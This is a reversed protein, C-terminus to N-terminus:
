TNLYYVDDAPLNHWSGDWSQYSLSKPVQVGNSEPLYCYKVTRVHLYVLGPVPNNGNTYFTAYGSSSDMCSTTGPSSQCGALALGAVPILLLIKLNKKMDNGETRAQM